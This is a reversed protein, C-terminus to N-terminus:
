RCFCGRAPSALMVLTRFILAVTLGSSEEIGGFTPFIYAISVEQLGLGNISVPLLTVFYVFTWLGGVMWFSMQEGMGDLLVTLCGFFGVM